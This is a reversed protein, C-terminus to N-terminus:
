RILSDRLEVADSLRKRSGCYKRKVIVEFSGNEQKPRINSYLSRQKNFRSLDMDFLFMDHKDKAVQVGRM